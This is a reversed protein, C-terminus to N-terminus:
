MEYLSFRNNALRGGVNPVLTVAGIYAIHSLVTTQGCYREFQLLQELGKKIREPTPVQGRGHGNTKIEYACILPKRRVYRVGVIDIEGFLHNGKRTHVPRFDSIVRLLLDEKEPYMFGQELFRWDHNRKLQDFVAQQLKNHKMVRRRNLSIRNRRPM